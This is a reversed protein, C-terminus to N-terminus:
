KWRGDSSAQLLSPIPVCIAIDTLSGLLIGGWVKVHGRGREVNRENGDDREGEEGGGGRMNGPRVM